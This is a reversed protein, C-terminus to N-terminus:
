LALLSYPHLYPRGFWPFKSALIQAARFEQSGSRCIRISFRLRARFKTATRWSIEGAAAEGVRCDAEGDRCRYTTAARREAGVHEDAANRRPVRSPGALIEHCRGRFEPRPSRCVVSRVVRIQVRIRQESLTNRAYNPTYLSIPRHSRGRQRQRNPRCV